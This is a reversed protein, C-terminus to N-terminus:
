NPASKNSPLNNELTELVKLLATKELGRAQRSNSASLLSKSDKYSARWSGKWVGCGQKWFLNVFMPEPVALKGRPGPDRSIDMINNISIFMAFLICLAASAPLPLITYLDQTLQTYM